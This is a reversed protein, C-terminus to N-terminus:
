LLSCLKGRMLTLTLPSSAEPYLVLVDSSRKPAPWDAIVVNQNYENATYAAFELSSPNM